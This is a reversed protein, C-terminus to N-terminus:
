DGVAAGRVMGGDLKGVGAGRACGLVSSKGGNLAGRRGVPVNAVDLQPLEPEVDDVGDETQDAGFEGFLSGDSGINGFEDGFTAIECFVALEVLYGSTAM